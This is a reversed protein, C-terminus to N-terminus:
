GKDLAFRVLKENEFILTWRSNKVRYITSHVSSNPDKELKGFKEELAEITHNHFSEQYEVDLGLFKAHSSPQFSIYGQKWLHYSISYHHSTNGIFVVVLVCLFFILYKKM